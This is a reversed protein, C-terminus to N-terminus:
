HATFGCFLCQRTPLLTRYSSRSSLLQLTIVYLRAGTWNSKVSNSNIMDALYNIAQQTEEKTRRRSVFTGCRLPLPFTAKEAGKRKLGGCTGANILLHAANYELCPQEWTTLEQTMFREWNHRGDLQLQWAERHLPMSPRRRPFSLQIRNFTSTTLLSM